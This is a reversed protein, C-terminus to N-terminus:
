PKNRSPPAYSDGAAMIFPIELPRIATTNRLAKWWKHRWERRASGGYRVLRWLWQRWGIPPYQFTSNEWRDYDFPSRKMSHNSSEAEEKTAYPGRDAEGHLDTVWWQSDMKYVEPFRKM